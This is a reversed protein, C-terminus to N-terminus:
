VTSFPPVFIVVFLIFSVSSLKMTVVFNWQRARVWFCVVIADAARQCPVGCEVLLFCFLFRFRIFFAYVLIALVFSRLHKTAVQFNRKIKSCIIKLLQRRVPDGMRTVGWSCSRLSCVLLFWLQMLKTIHQRLSVCGGVFLNLRIFHTFSSRCCPFPPSFLFSLFAHTLATLLSYVTLRRLHRSGRYKTCLVFQALLYCSCEKHRSPMCCNKSIYVCPLRLLLAFLFPFLYPHLQKGNAM